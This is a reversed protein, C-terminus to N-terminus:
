KCIYTLSLSQQIVQKYTLIRQILKTRFTIVFIDVAHLILYMLQPVKPNFSVKDVYDVPDLYLYHFNNRLTHLEEPTKLSM